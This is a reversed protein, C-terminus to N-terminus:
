SFKVYNAFGIYEKTMGTAADMGIKSVSFEGLQIICGVYFILFGILWPLIFRYGRVANRQEYSLHFLGKKRRLATM